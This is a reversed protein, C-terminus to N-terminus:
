YVGPLANNKPPKAIPYKSIHEKRMDAASLASDFNGYAQPDAEAGQDDFQQVLEASLVLAEYEQMAQMLRQILEAPPVLYLKLRGFDKAIANYLAIAVEAGRLPLRMKSIQDFKIQLDQITPM